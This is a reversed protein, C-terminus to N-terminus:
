QDNLEEIQLLKHIKALHKKCLYIVQTHTQHHADYSDWMRLVRASKDAVRKCKRYECYPMM